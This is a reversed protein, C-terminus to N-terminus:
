APSERASTGAAPRVEIRSIFIESAALNQRYDPPLERLAVLRQAAIDHLLGCLNVGAVIVLCDGFKLEIRKDELRTNLIQAWPLVWSEGAWITVILSSQSERSVVFSVVPEETARRKGSSPQLMSM